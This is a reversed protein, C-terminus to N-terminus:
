IPPCQGSYSSFGFLDAAYSAYCEPNRGRQRLSGANHNELQYRQHALEHIIMTGQEGRSANWFPPCLGIAHSGSEPCTWAGWAPHASCRTRCSGITINSTNNSLYRIGAGLYSQLNEFRTSLSDLESETALTTTAFTSGTFRNRFRAGVQEPAGFRSLYAQYSVASQANISQGISFAALGSFIAASTLYADAAGDATAVVSASNAPATNLSPTLASNAGVTGTAPGRMVEQVALSQQTAPSANASANHTRRTSSSSSSKGTCYKVAM